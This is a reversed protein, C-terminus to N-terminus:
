PLNYTIYISSEWGYKAVQGVYAITNNTPIPRITGRAGGIILESIANLGGNCVSIPTVIAANDKFRARPDTIKFNFEKWTLKEPAPMASALVSVPPLELRCRNNIIVYKVTIKISIKFFLWMDTIFSGEFYKTLSGNRFRLSSFVPRDVFRLTNNTILLNPNIACPQIIKSNDLYILSSPVLTNCQITNDVCISQSPISPRPNTTGVYLQSFKLNSQKDINQPAGLIINPTFPIQTVTVSDQTGLLTSSVIAQAPPGTHGKPGNPGVIDSTPDEGNPGVLSIGTVGRPGTSGILSPGTSGQRLVGDPGTIGMLGTQGVFSQGTPGILRENIGAVGTPGLNYTRWPTNNILGNEQIILNGQGTSGIQLTNRVLLNRIVTLNSFNGDGTAM